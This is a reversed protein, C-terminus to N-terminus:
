QIVLFDDETLTLQCEKDLITPAKSISNKMAARTREPNQLM